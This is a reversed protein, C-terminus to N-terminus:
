RGHHHPPQVDVQPLDLAVLLPNHAPLSVDQRQSRPFGDNSHPLTAGPRREKEGTTRNITSVIGLFSLARSWIKRWSLPLPTSSTASRMRANNLAGRFRLLFTATCGQGSCRHTCSVLPLSPASDEVLPLRHACRVIWEMALHAGM